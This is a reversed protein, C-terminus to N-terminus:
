KQWLPTTQNRDTDIVGCDDPTRCPYASKAATWKALLSGNRM